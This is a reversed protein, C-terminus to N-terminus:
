VGEGDPIEIGIKRLARLAAEIEKVLRDDGFFSPDQAQLLPNPEYYSLDVILDDFIEMVDSRIAAKTPLGFTHCLLEFKKVAEKRSPPDRLAGILIGVAEELKEM